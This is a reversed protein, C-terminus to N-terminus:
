TPPILSEKPIRNVLHIGLETGTRNCVVTLIEDTKGAEDEEEAEDHDKFMPWIRNAWYNITSPSWIDDDLETKPDLWNALLILIQADHKIVHDALEYPIESDDSSLVTTTMPNLDM